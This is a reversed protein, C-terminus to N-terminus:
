CPGFQFNYKGLDNIKMNWNPNFAKKQGTQQCSEHTGKRCENICTRSIDHIIDIFLIKFGHSGIFMIYFCTM